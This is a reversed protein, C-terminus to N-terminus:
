ELILENWISVMKQGDRDKRAGDWLAFAVSLPEKPNFRLNENESSELPRVFVVHWKGGRWFGKSQVKEVLPVRPTYSGMGQALAEEASESREPNSLPNGAGWGTIFQPHHFQTKAQSVEFSSGHQYNKQSPYWDVAANPYTTEIDKRAEGQREWAAKWHWIYVPSKEDGMGFFPPDKELSFQLAVGDTFSQVTVGEEDPYPDEWSLYFVIQEGNHLAKIEVGEIREDRWWLPTLAIFVAKEKQWVPSFPDLDFEENIRKAEIQNYKLRSREESGARALSQTYHILQWIQEQTFTGTYSPMPSGPIGGVMRDYLDESSSSGKYVGATLDRPRLPYGLSDQMKQPGDGKGLAGHCGACSAMFVERGKELEEKTAPPEEPVKVMKEVPIEKRVIKEIWEWSLGQSIMEEPIEGSQKYKGIESLYRVYYVLAWRDNLSLHGWSPMASGPMGGTVTKFLDEDTAEMNTTSVLRFKDLIFDRPKPSLLYAAKGDAGGETGHCIACQKRYLVEGRTFIEKNLSSKINVSVKSPTLLPYYKVLLVVFLVFFPILLFKSVAPNDKSFIPM